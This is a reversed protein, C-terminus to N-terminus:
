RAAERAELAARVSLQLAIAPRELVHADHRFGCQLQGWAYRGLFVPLSMERAQRIHFAEHAILALGGATTEDFRGQKILVFRWFTTASMGLVVPLWRFPAVTVVRMARLDQEPVFDALTAVTRDSLRPLSWGRTEAM